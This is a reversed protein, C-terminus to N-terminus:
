TKKEIKSMKEKATKVTFWKEIQRAQTKRCEFECLLCNRQSSQYKEPRKIGPKWWCINVFNSM